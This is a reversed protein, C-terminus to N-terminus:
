WFDSMERQREFSVFDRCYLIETNSSNTAGKVGGTGTSLESLHRDIYSWCSAISRVSLAITVRPFKGKSLRRPVSRRALLRIDPMEGEIGMDTGWRVGRTIGM